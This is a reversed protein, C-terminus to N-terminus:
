VPAPKQAHTDLPEPKNTAAESQNRRWVSWALVRVRAVGCPWVPRGQWGAEARARAETPQQRWRVLNTERTA